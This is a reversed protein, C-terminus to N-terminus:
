SLVAALIQHVESRDRPAIMPWGGDYLRDPQPAHSTVALVLITHEADMEEVNAGMGDWLNRLRSIAIATPTPCLCLLV